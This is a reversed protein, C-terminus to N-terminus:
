PWIQAAFSVVILCSLILSGLAFLSSDFSSRRNMLTKM